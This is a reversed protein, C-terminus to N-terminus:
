AALSESTWMNAFGMNSFFWTLWQFLCIVGLRGGFVTVLNGSTKYPVIGLRFSPWSLIFFSRQPTAWTSPRVQESFLGRHKISPDLWSWLKLLYSHLSILVASSSAMASYWHRIEGVQFVDLDSGLKLNADLIRPKFKPNQIKSKAIRALIQIKCFIYWVVDVRTLPYLSCFGLCHM